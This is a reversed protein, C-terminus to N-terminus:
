GCVVQANAWDVRDWWNNADYKKVVLKLEGAGTVDLDIVRPQEGPRVVDSAYALTDDAWVEVIVDGDADPRAMTDDIGVVSSFRTCAGGLYFVAEADANSGLGKAYTTGMLMMPGGDGSATEGNHMDREWPGHGGMSSAFPLDSLYHTGPAPPEPGSVEGVNFGTFQALGRSSSAATMFLGADSVDVAPVLASGVQIWTAGDTSCEALFRDGDRSLRLHASSTFSRDQRISDLRGDNNSDWSLVCGNAPTLALNLFGKSGQTTLDDRVIIGARAWPGTPDQAEVKTTVSGSSGLADDRYIAGFQNTGGWLDAGGGQIAYSDGRQAFLASNFSVTRNPEEVGGAVLLRVTTTTQEARGLVDYSGRARLGVVTSSVVDPESLSVAFKVRLAEGATLVARNTEDLPQVTIGPEASLRVQADTVDTFPNDNRLSLEVVMPNNASLAGTGSNVALTLPWPHGRLYALVQQAVDHIDGSPKVPLQDTRRTWNDGMAYWDIPRPARNEALAAGLEDFFAQWRPKYYSSLLGAWERNAYDHLGAQAGSRNGWVTLLTRADHELRDAEAPTSAWSRADALWPGLMTERNTATVQELLDIEELWQGTLASFRAVDRADYAAKIQPLLVRSHNSLVQRAVDALDYRYASSTRLEPSMALLSPLAQAFPTAEYRMKQPSWTAATTATLSPQAAFLGDHAESWGDAPLSYATSGAARWAAQAAADTGGYRRTAWGEYWAQMDVPGDSWALSTLFDFAVPNNDSAEPLVAIGDLASGQKAKWAWYRENWVAMNAGMTTHGGFNWISGFAYPTQLWSAERDLGQYRDSLGDVILMKSRDIATLTQRLPNNQWGLIAWIAGPNAEQLASEVAISAAAVDVSGARGGEHLLDMKYMSSASFRRKSHRYFAEAVADFQDGTPDLWGSREFGVWGGQPVVNAGPNKEAFHPPVTGFYGPLVPTIGLERLRRAIKEGLAARQEVQARSIASPFCCMNQLLWWPQHAPQPIWELAEAETHGFEQFTDLYVAEAGVPMFVENIGHMALVDIEREWDKWTRYAGTYGDDTDNLAFRHSVNARRVIERDPVPLRRPLRDLSDGTWSVNVGVVEGLYANFGTLLSSVSTGEITTQQAKGSIRFWDSEGDGNVAEFQVQRALDPPLLRGLVEVAPEVSFTEQDAAPVATAEAAAAGEPPLLPAAVSAILSAVVVSVLAHPGASGSSRAIM